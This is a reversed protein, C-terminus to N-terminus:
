GRSPRWIAASRALQVPAHAYLKFDHFPDTIIKTAWVLGTAVDRVVFLQLTRFVLAGVGVALWVMGLSQLFGTLNTYPRFLGMLTPDLLLPVFSFGWVAMMVYKRKLNYGVKIAEKHAHSADNVHDYGKPEFFFHGAQRSTMAFGWALLAALWPYQWVLAYCVIFTCASFFHLSRNIINHHYYRHDDWRQEKLQERFNSM